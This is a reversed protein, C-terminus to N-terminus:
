KFFATVGPDDTSTESGVQLQTIKMTDIILPLQAVGLTMTDGGNIAVKFDGGGAGGPTADFVHIESAPKTSTITLDSSIDILSTGSLAEVHTEYSTYKPGAEGALSSVTTTPHDLYAM